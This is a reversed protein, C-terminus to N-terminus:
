KNQSVIVPSYILYLIEIRTDPLILNEQGESSGKEELQFGDRDREIGLAKLKSSREKKDVLIM